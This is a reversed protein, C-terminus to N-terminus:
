VYNCMWRICLWWVDALRRWNRELDMRESAIKSIDDHPMAKRMDLINYLFMAGPLVFISGSYEWWPVGPGDGTKSPSDGAM